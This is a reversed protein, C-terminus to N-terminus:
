IAGIQWKYLFRNTSGTDVTHGMSLFFLAGGSSILLYLELRKFAFYANKRNSCRLGQKTNRIKRKM